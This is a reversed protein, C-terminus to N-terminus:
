REPGEIQLADLKLKLFMVFIYNSIVNSFIDAKSLVYWQFSAFNRQSMVAVYIVILKLIMLAPSADVM